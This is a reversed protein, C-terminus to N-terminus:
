RPEPTAPSGIGNGWRALDLANPPGDYALLGEALAIIRNGHARGLAASAVSALVGIHESRALVRLAALLVGAERADLSTDVERVILHDPRRALERAIVL